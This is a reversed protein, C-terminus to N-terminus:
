HVLRWAGWSYRVQRNYVPISHAVIHAGQPHGQSQEPETIIYTIIQVQIHKTLKFLRITPAYPHVIVYIHSEQLSVWVPAGSVSRLKVTLRNASSYTSDTFAPAPCCARSANPLSNWMGPWMKKQMSFSNPIAARVPCESRDIAIALSAPTTGTITRKLTKRPQKTYRHVYLFSCISQYSLRKPQGLMWIKSYLELPQRNVANQKSCPRMTTLVLKRVSHSMRFHNSTGLQQTPTNVEASNGFQNHESVTFDKLWHDATFSWSMNSPVNLSDLDSLNVSIEVIRSYDHNTNIDTSSWKSPYLTTQWSSM